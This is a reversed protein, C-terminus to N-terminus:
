YMGDLKRASQPAARHTAREAHTRDPVNQHPLQHRRRLKGAVSSPSPSSRARVDHANSADRRISLIVKTGPDGRM